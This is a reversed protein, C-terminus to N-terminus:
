VRINDDTLEDIINNFDDLFFNRMFYIYKANNEDDYYLLKYSTPDFTILRKISGIKEKYIISFKNSFLNYLYISSNKYIVRKTNLAVFILYILFALFGCDPGIPTRPFELRDSIIQYIILIPGGVIFLYIAYSSLRKM